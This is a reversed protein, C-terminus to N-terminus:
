VKEYYPIKLNYTKKKQASPYILKFNGSVAFTRCIYKQIPIAHNGHNTGSPYAPTKGYGGHSEARLEPLSHLFLNSIFTGTIKRCGRDTRNMYFEEMGLSCIYKKTRNM